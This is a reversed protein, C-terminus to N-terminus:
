PKVESSYPSAALEAAWGDDFFPDHEPVGGSRDVANLAALRMADPRIRPVVVCGGAHSEFRLLVAEATGRWKKQTANSQEMWAEYRPKGTARMAEDQWGAEAGADILEERPTM